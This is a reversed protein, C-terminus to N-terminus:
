ALSACPRQGRRSFACRRRTIASPPRQVATRGCSWPPRLATFRERSCAEASLHLLIALRDLHPGPGMWNLNQHPKYTEGLLRTILNANDYGMAAASRRLLSALSEGPLARERAPLSRWHEM